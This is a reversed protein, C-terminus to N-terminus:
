YEIELGVGPSGDLPNVYPVIPLRTQEDLHNRAVVKGVRGRVQQIVGRDATARSDVSRDHGVLVPGHFRSHKQLPADM